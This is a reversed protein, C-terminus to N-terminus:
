ILCKDLSLWIVADYMNKLFSVCQQLKHRILITCGGGQKSKSLNRPFSGEVDLSLKWCETFLIIDYSLIFCIFSIDNFKGETMIDAMLPEQSKLRGATLNQRRGMLHYVDRTTM